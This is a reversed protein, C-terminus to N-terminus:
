AAETEVVYGGEDKNFRTVRLFGNAGEEPDVAYLKIVHQTVLEHCDHCLTVLNSLAHRLAKGVLSRPVLHHTELVNLAGCIRCHHHDRKRAKKSNREYEADDARKKEWRSIAVPAPKPFM